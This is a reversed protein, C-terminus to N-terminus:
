KVPEPKAVPAAKEPKVVLTKNKKIAKSKTNKFMADLDGKISKKDKSKDDKTEEKKEEEM